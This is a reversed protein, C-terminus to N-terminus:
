SAFADSRQISAAAKSAFDIENFKLFSWLQIKCIKEMCKVVESGSLNKGECVGSELDHCDKCNLDEFRGPLFDPFHMAIILGLKEEDVKLM